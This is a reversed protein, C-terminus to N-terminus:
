LYIGTNQRQYLPISLNVGVVQERQWYDEDDGIDDRFIDTFLNASDLLCRLKSLFQRNVYVGYGSM